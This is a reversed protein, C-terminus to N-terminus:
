NSKYFMFVWLKDVPLTVETINDYDHPDWSLRNDNWSKFYM